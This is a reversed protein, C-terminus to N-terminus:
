FANYGTNFLLKLALTVQVRSELVETDKAQGGRRPSGWAAGPDSTLPAPLSQVRHSRRDRLQAGDSGAQWHSRSDQAHHEQGPMALGTHAASTATHPVCSDM